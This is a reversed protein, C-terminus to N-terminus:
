AVFHVLLDDLTEQCGVVTIRLRAQCALSLARRKSAGLAPVLLSLLVGIIAISVLLEILTFGGPRGPRCRHSAM